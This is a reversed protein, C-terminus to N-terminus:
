LFSAGPTTWTVVVEVTSCGRPLQNPVRKHGPGLHLAREARAEHDVLGAVDDRVVVDDGLARDIRTLKEFLSDIFARTTPLSRDM